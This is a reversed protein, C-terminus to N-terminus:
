RGACGMKCGSPIHGGGPDWCTTPNCSDDFPCNCVDTRGNRGPCKCSSGGGGDGDGGAQAIAVIAWILLALVGIAVTAYAGVMVPTAWRPPRQSRWPDVTAWAPLWRLWNPVWAAGLPATATTATQLPADRLNDFTWQHLM